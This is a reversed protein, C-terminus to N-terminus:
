EGKRWKGIFDMKGCFKFSLFHTPWKKKKEKFMNLVSKNGLIKHNYALWGM